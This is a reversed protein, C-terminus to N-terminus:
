TATGTVSSAEGPQNKKSGEQERGQQEEEEDNDDDDDDVFPSVPLQYKGAAAV